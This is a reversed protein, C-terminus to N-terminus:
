FGASLTLRYSRPGYYVETRRLVEAGGRRNAYSIFSEGKQDDLLNGINLQLAYTIRKRRWEYRGGLNVIYREPTPPTGYLNTSLDRGGIPLSTKAPGVYSVGLNPSLGKLTGSTFTYKTFISATDESGSFLSAGQLGGVLDSAGVDGVKLKSNSGQKTVRDVIGDKNDDHEVLGFAERGLARVWADYETGWRKGEPDILEALKFPSIAERETHAYNFVFQLRTTPQFILQLDFGTAEDTYTTNAGKATKISPNNGLFGGLEKEYVIPEFDDPGSVASFGRTGRSLDAFAEELYTRWTKGNTKGNRDIVPEDLLAYDFYNYTQPYIDGGFFQRRGLYGKPFAFERGIVNGNADYILRQVTGLDIGDRQFYYNNVPYNLPTSATVQTHDFYGDRSPPEGGVPDRGGVWFIPAPAFDTSWIANERTIRYGSLTGSLKGGFFDFKFGVEESVTQESPIGDGNGDLAGTNPTIGEGRMAYVTLNKTLRYNLALTQTVATEAEAGPRYQNVAVGNPPPLFGFTQNDPNRTIVGAPPNHRPSAPNFTPEQWRDYLRDQSHYRDHRLGAILGLKEDLFWGQYLGFHGSYWVDLRRYDTGPQALPEGNYRIPDFNYISRFQLPDDTALEGRPVFQNNVSEGSTVVDARDQIDHRGVLFTHKAPSRGLFDRTEFSYTARLRYQATETDEPTKRWWYRVTRYDTLDRRDGPIPTGRFPFITVNQALFAKTAAAIAPDTAPDNARAVLTTKVLLGGNENTLTALSMDFREEEAASFFAGGSITLNDIPTFDVTAMLNSERRQDYTDPGSIRFSQPKGGFDKAWNYQEYFPNRFDPNIAAATNDYIFQPGIGSAKRDAFQGEVFVNWRRNQFQLSASSYSLDNEAFDTWSGRHDRALIVRYDLSGGWLDRKVPGTADFTGRVYGESGVGLSAAYAPANMPRKAVVNVIGSLVGIGYLLSNPGRVVEMRSVNATDIIGGLTVGYNAIIGGYRFGERNQFSVNFGRVIMGNDFRGGLGSRSSASIDASQTENVGKGNSEASNATGQTYQETFVGSSYQLSERFNTAGIDSIFEENIVEISMPLDKIATNLSTGSTSNTSRYGVDRSADIQFPSLTVVEPASKAEAVAPRPPPVTQARLAPILALGAACAVLAARRHFRTILLPVRTM